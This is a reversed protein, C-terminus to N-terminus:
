RIMKRFIVVVLAANLLIGLFGEVMAASAAWGLARVDGYGVTAFTIASFYLGNLLPSDFAPRTAGTPHAEVHGTAHAVAFLFGFALVVVAITGVVRWPRVGYGFCWSFVFLRGFREWYLLSTAGLAALFLPISDGCERWWFSLALLLLCSAALAISATRLVRSERRVPALQRGCESAWWHAEDEDGYAGQKRYQEKLWAYQKEAERWNQEAHPALVPGHRTGDKKVPGIHEFDCRLDGQILTEKFDLRGIARAGEQWESLPRELRGVEAKEGEEQDGSAREKREAL